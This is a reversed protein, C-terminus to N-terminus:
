GIKLTGLIPNKKDVVHKKKKRIIFFLMSMQSIHIVHSIHSYLLSIFIM